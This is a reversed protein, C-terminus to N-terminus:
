CAAAEALAPQAQKRRRMWLSAAGVAALGAAHSPTFPVAVPESLSLSSTGGLFLFPNSPSSTSDLLGVTLTGTTQLAALISASNNLIGDITLTTDGNTFGDLFVGTDFGALTLSIKGKDFGTADTDLNFFRISISLTALSTIDQYNQSSFDFTGFNGTTETKPWTNVDFAVFGPLTTSNPLPISASITAAQSLPATALLCASLALLASTKM